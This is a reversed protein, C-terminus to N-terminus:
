QMGKLIFDRIKGFEKRKLRKTLYMSDQRIYYDKYFGRFLREIEEKKFQRFDKYKDTLGMMFFLFIYVDMFGHDRLGSSLQRLKGFRTVSRYSRNFLRERHAARNRVENLRELYPIFDIRPNTIGFKRAVHPMIAIGNIELHKILYIVTGLVAGEIFYHFPPYNISANIGNIAVQSGIYHARNSAFDYRSQYYRGYHVYSELSSGSFSVSKWNKVSPGILQPNPNNYCSKILYFFPNDKLPNTRPLSSLQKYCVEILTSKLKTEITSTMDMVIRSLYKDFFFLMLVDDICYHEIDPRFAYLYGKFKFMGIREILMKIQQDDLYNSRELGDDYLKQLYSVISKRRYTYQAM